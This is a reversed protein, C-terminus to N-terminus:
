QGHFEKIINIMEKAEPSQSAIADWTGLAMERFRAFESDTLTIVEVGSASELAKLEEQNMKEMLPFYSDKVAQKVARQLEPSLAEWSEMNVLFASTPPSVFPPMIVYDVVEKMKMGELEPLSWFCGDITGLKLAMYLEPPPIYAPSGGADKVFQSFAGTARLKMGKIDEVKRVPSNTMLCLRVNGGLSGIYAINRSAYVKELIEFYGRNYVIDYYDELSTWGLPLFSADGVGAPLKGGWYGTSTPIIDISGQAVADFVEDSGVLADASYEEIQIQGSSAKEIAEFVGKHILETTLDGPSFQFQGKWKFVQPSPAPAPSPSPAPATPEACGALFLVGLMVTILIISGSVSLKM